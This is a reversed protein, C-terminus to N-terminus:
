AELLALKNKAMKGVKTRGGKNVVYSLLEEGVPHGDEAFHFGVYYLHDLELSRDKRLAAGVEYGRSLLTRLRQLAPDGARLAPRTDKVGQKLEIAALAFRDDDTAKDSRLLLRLVVGCKDENKSRRLKQALARLSAAVGGPDAAQVVDLLAEWGRNGALIRKEAADLLQKRVAPSIKKAVDAAGLVKRILWGRDADKTDLLAKALATAADARGTLLEAVIEARRRDQTCLVHILARTAAESKQAALYAAAFRVRDTDEHALLKQFRPMVTPPLALSGLTHLATHALARDPAEAADILAGTVKASTKGDKLAFRLAILAEQRVLPPETKSTAYALLTPVAQADELYGLIKIAAAVASTRAEGKKQAKLYKETEALYSHRERAGAEKVRQRVALAVAKAAEGESSALGHLLTTFAEKGGLDALVADLVRRQEPTASPMRARILPVGDEGLSRIAATAARKVDEVHSGLLDFARQAVKKGQGTATLAELAHRQLVPVGSDMLKLFGETAQPKRVKLEGLVIAAAIRKEVSGDQLMRIIKDVETM